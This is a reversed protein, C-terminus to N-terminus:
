PNPGNTGLASDIFAERRLGSAAQVMRGVVGRSADARNM